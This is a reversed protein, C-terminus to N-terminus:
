QLIKSEVSYFLSNLGNLVIVWQITCSAIIIILPTDANQHNVCTEGERKRERAREDQRIFWQNDQESVVLDIFAFMCTFYYFRHWFSHLIIQFFVCVLFCRFYNFFSISFRLNFVYLSICDRVWETIAEIKMFLGNGLCNLNIQIHKMHVYSYHQYNNRIRQTHTYLIYANLLTENRKTKHKWIM